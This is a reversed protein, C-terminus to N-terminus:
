TLFGHYINPFNQLDHFDMLVPGLNSSDPQSDITQFRLPAVLGIPGRGVGLVAMYFELDVFCGVPGVALTYVLDASGKLPRAHPIDEM